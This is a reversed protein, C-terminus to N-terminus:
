CPRRRQGPSQVSPRMQGFGHRDDVRAVQGDRGQQKADLEARKVRQALGPQRGAALHQEPGVIRETRFGRLLDGVPVAKRMDDMAQQEIRQQAEATGAQLRADPQEQGHADLDGPFEGLVRRHHDLGVAFLRQRDAIGAVGNEIGQHVRQHHHQAKQERGASGGGDADNQAQAQFKQGGHRDPVVQREIDQIEQNGDREYLSPLRSVCQSRCEGRAWGACAASFAAMFVM